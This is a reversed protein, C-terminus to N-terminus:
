KRKGQTKPLKLTLGSFQFRWSVNKKFNQSKKYNFVNLVIQQM